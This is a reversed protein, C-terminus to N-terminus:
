QPSFTFPYSVRVTGGAPEPFSLSYFSKVVCARVDQNALDSGSTDQAMTVSGDRGIMFSVAVRGELNPNSKLGDQYCGVFRGSNLRVIRQIVAADLRGNTTIKSDWELRPGRVVHTPALTGSGHGFGCHADNGCNGVRQDLSRGLGGVDNVGVGEGHGGGGEGVGSLGLGTGFADGIDNSWLNGMHSDRDSGALVNGWPVIPANPDSQTQAAIIGIMGFEAAEKLAHERALQANEPKEDGKASWRGATTLPKAGGMQGAEHQAQQGGSANSKPAAGGTVDQAVKQDQEREASSQIYAKLDLMRQRDTTDDDAASLSPMFFAVAALIAAHAVGSGAFTRVSTDDLIAAAVNQAPRTEREGVSIRFSFDGVMVDASHGARLVFAEPTQMLRDVFVTATAPPTVILEGSVWSAIDLDMEGIMFSLVGESANKHAIANGGWLQTVQVELQEATAETSTYATKHFISSNM